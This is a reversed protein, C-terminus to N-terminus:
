YGCEKYNQCYDEKEHEEGSYNDAIALSSLASCAMTKGTHAVLGAACHAATTARLQLAVRPSDGGGSYFHRLLRIWTVM